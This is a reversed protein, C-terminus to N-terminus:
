SQQENEASGSLNKLLKRNSRLRLCCSVCRVSQGCCDM